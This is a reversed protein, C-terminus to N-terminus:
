MSIVGTKEYEFFLGEWSETQGEFQAPFHYIRNLGVRKAKPFSKKEFDDDTLIKSEKFNLSIRAKEKDVFHFFTVDFENASEGFLEHKEPFVGHVRVFYNDNSDSKHYSLSLALKTKKVSGGLRWDSSTSGFEVSSRGIRNYVNLVKYDRIGSSEAQEIIGIVDNVAFPFKKKANKLLRTIGELTQIGESPQQDVMILGDDDWAKNDMAGYAVSGTMPLLVTMAFKLVNKM